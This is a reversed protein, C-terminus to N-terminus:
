DANIEERSSETKWNVARRTLERSMKRSILRTAQLEPRATAWAGDCGLVDSFPDAISSRCDRM